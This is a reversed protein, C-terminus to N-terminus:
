NNFSKIVELASQVLHMYIISIHENNNMFVVVTNQFHFAFLKFLGNCFNIERTESDFKFDILNFYM